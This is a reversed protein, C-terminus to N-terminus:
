KDCKKELYMCHIVNTIIKHHGSLTEFIQGGLIQTISTIKKFNFDNTNIVLDFSVVLINPKWHDLNIKKKDTTFKEPWFRARIRVHM